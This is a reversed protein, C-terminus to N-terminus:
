ANLKKELENAIDQAIDPRMVFINNNELNSNVEYDYATVATYNAQEALSLLSYTDTNIIVNPNSNDTYHIITTIATAISGYKKVIKLEIQEDTLYWDFYPDIIDRNALRVLWDYGADKYLDSGIMDPREGPEVTLPLYYSLNKKVADRLAARLLINKAEKNKYTISPFNKFYEIAM